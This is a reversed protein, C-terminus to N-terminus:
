TASRCFLVIFSLCIVALGSSPNPNRSSSAPLTVELHNRREAVMREDRNGFLKKPPFELAALQPPFFFIVLFKLQCIPQPPSLPTSIKTWYYVIKHSKLSRKLMLFTRGLVTNRYLDLTNVLSSGVTLGVLIYRLFCVMTLVFLHFM